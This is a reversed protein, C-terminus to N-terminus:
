IPLDLVQLRVQEGFFNKTPSLRTDLICHPIACFTARQKSDEIRIYEPLLSIIIVITISDSVGGGM